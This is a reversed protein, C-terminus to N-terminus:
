ESDYFHGALVVDVALQQPQRGALRLIAFCIRYSDSENKFLANNEQVSM